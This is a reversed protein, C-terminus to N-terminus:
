LNRKLIISIKDGEVGKYLKKGKELCIRDLFKKVRGAMFILINRLLPRKHIAKEFKFKLIECKQTGSKLLKM